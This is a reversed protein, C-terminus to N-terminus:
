LNVASRALDLGARYRVEDFDAHHGSGTLDWAWLGVFAGTFGLTRIDFVNALM